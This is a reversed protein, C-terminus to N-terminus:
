SEYFGIDKLKKVLFENKTKLVINCVKNSFNDEIILADPNRIFSILDNINRKKYDSLLKKNIHRKNFGM